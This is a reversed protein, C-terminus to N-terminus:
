HNGEHFMHIITVKSGNFNEFGAHTNSIKINKKVSLIYVEAGERLVIEGEHPYATYAKNNLSIGEVRYYNQCSIIFIVPIKPATLKGTAFNLATRLDRSTSTSTPLKVRMVEDGYESDENITHTMYVDLWEKMM